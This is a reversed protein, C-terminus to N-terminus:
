PVKSMLGALLFWSLVAGSTREIVAAKAQQTPPTNGENNGILKNFGYGICNYFDRNSSAIGLAQGVILGATMPLYSMRPWITSGLKSLVYFATGDGLFGRAFPTSFIKLKKPIHEDVYEKLKKNEAIYAEYAFGTVASALFPTIVLHNLVLAGAGVGAMVLLKKNAKIKEVWANQGAAARKPGADSAHVAKCAFLSLILLIKLPNRVSSDINKKLLIM